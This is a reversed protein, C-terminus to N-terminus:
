SDSSSVRQLVHPSSILVLSPVFAKTGLCVLKLRGADMGRLLPM